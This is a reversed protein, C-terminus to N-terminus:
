QVGMVRFLKLLKWFLSPGSTTVLLLPGALSKAEVRPVMKETSM